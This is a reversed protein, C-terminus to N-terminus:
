NGNQEGKTELQPALAANIRKMEPSCRDYIDWVDNIGCGMSHWTKICEKAERLVAELAAIRARADRLDLMADHVVSGAFEPDDNVWSRITEASIRNM